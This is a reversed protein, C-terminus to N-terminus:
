KHPKLNSSDLLSEHCPQTGGSDAGVRKEIKKDVIWDMLGERSLRRRGHLAGGQSFDGEVEM